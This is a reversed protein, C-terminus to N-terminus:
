GPAPRKRGGSPLEVPLTTMGVMGCPILRDRFETAFVEAVGHATWTDRTVSPLLLAPHTYLQLEGKDLRVLQGTVHCSLDSLLFEVVPTNAEPPPMKALVAATAAPIPARRDKIGIRTGAFPSFGNIRVASDELEL